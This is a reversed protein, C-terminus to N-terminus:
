GNRGMRREQEELRRRMRAGKRLTLWVLGCLLVITVGYAGLVTGAYKGLDIMLGAKGTGRAGQAAALPDRDTGGGPGGMADSSTPM